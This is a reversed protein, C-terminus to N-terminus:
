QAQVPHRAAIADTHAAVVFDNETLGGADHTTLEITARGWGLAVDPHHGQEDAMRGVDVVFALAQAFDAFRYTKRLREWEVVEWGDLQAALGDLADGVLPRAGAPLPQCTRSALENTSM